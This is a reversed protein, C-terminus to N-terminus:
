LASFAISTSNKRRQLVGNNVALIREIREALLNRVYKTVNMLSPNLRWKLLELLHKQKVKKRYASFAISKGGNDNNLLYEKLEKRIFEKCVKDNMLSPNLRRLSDKKKNDLHLTLYVGSHDSM